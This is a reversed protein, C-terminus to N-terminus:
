DRECDHQDDSSKREHKHFQRETLVCGETWHSDVPTETWQKSAEAVAHDDHGGDHHQVVIQYDAPGDEVHEHREADVVQGPLVAFGFPAGCTLSNSFVMLWRVIQVM